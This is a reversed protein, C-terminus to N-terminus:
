ASVRGRPIWSRSSQRRARTIGELEQPPEEQSALAFHDGRKPGAIWSLTGTQGGSSSRSPAPPVAHPGHSFLTPPLVRYPGPPKGNADAAASVKLTPEVPTSKSDYQIVESHQFISSDGALLHITVEFTGQALSYWWAM